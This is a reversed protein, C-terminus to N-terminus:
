FPNSAKTTHNQSHRRAQTRLTNPRGSQTQNTAHNGESTEWKDKMQRGSTEWEPDPQDCSKRCKDKMQRGSTEWEPDPQDCSKGEKDGTQRENTERKDEVRPRTPRM